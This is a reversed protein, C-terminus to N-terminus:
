QERLSVCEFSEAALPRGCFPFYRSLSLSPVLCLVFVYVSLSLSVSLCVVGSPFLRVRAYVSCIMSLCTCVGLAGRVSVCFAFINGVWWGCRLLPVCLCVSVEACVPGVGSM